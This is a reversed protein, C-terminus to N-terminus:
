FAITSRAFPHFLFACSVVVMFAFIRATWRVNYKEGMPNGIFIDTRSKTCRHTVFIRLCIAGIQFPAFSFYVFSININTPNIKQAFGRIPLIKYKQLRKKLISNLLNHDSRGYQKGYFKCVNSIIGHKNSEICIQFLQQWITWFSISKVGTMPCYGMYLNNFFMTNNQKNKLVLLSAINRFSCRLSTWHGTSHKPLM